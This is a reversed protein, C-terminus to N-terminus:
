SIKFFGKGKYKDKKAPKILRISDIFQTLEDYSHTFIRKEKYYSNNIKKIVEYYEYQSKAILINNNEISINITKPVNINIKHSYGINITLIKTNEEYELKYGVGKLELKVEFTRNSSLENNYNILSELDSLHKNNLLNSLCHKIKSNITGWNKNDEKLLPYFSQSDIKEIILVSKNTNKEIKIKYNKPINICKYFRIIDLNSSKITRCLVLQKYLNFNKSNTITSLPKSSLTRLNLSLSDIETKNTNSLYKNEIYLKKKGINSM